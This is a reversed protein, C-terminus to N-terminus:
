GGFISMQEGRKVNELTAISLEGNLEIIEGRYIYMVNYFLMYSTITYIYIHIYTYYGHCCWKYIIDWYHIITRIGM